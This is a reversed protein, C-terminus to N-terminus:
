VHLCQQYPQREHSNHDSIYESRQRQDALIITQRHDYNCKPEKQPTSSTEAHYSYDISGDISRTITTRTQMSQEQAKGGNKDIKQCM